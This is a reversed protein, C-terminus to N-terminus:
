DGYYDRLAALDDGDAAGDLLIFEDLVAGLSSSYRGTGDQGINLMRLGEFSIDKLGASIKATVFEGFDYSLRIEGAERDVAFLVYVWGDRFDLPLVFEKDFRDGGSGVNFKIDSERLSLVFGRNAGSNWDKNSFLCPDSGVGGTKLWMGVTFSNKDPTCNKLTVYGDDFQAASGFYGDVYYLKGNAETEADGAAIETDGDFPLYARVRDAGLLDALGDPTPSSEHTRHGHLYHIEYVPRELAEVGKFLGSPVRSTWTEPQRDALGLAALVISATDRIEMDEIEGKEVTKGVAAWLIYKEADTRGGHSNGVGGHDATVIFLTDDLIGCDRCTDYIKGIYGDTTHLQDLHRKTGYGSGHGAGDVEDFHVFLITPKNEELFKCAADTVRADGPATKKTVGLNDEIIGVNIPNWNCFSGLVADPMAEHVVRFFTPFESDVPYPTESILSNSLRHIEPKVGTMLSGWCQASITPDSTLCRYTVAGDAFIEGLRPMDADRFFTGAGDVGIIVVHSYVASEEGADDPTEPEDPENPENPEDPEAAADPAEEAEPIQEGATDTVSVADATGAETKETQGAGACGALLLAPVLLILLSAFFRNKLNKM